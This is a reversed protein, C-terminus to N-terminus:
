LTRMLDSSMKCTILAEFFLTIWFSSIKMEGEDEILRPIEIINDSCATMRMITGM